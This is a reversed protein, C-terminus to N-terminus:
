RHFWPVLLISLWTQIFAISKLIPISSLLVSSVMQKRLSKGSYNRARMTRKETNQLAQQWPLERIAQSIACHFLVEQLLLQPCVTTLTPTCNESYSWHLATNNQSTKTGLMLMLSLSITSCVSNGDLCVTTMFSHLSHPLARRQAMKERGWLKRTKHMYKWMLRELKHAPALAQINYLRNTCDAFRLPILKVSYLKKNGSGNPSYM